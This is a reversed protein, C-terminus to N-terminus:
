EGPPANVRVYGLRGGRYERKFWAAGCGRYTAGARVVTRQACSRARLEDATM